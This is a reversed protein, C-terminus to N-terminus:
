GFFMYVLGFGIVALVVCIADVLDLKLMKEIDECHKICFEEFDTPDTLEGQKYKQYLEDKEIYEKLRKRM